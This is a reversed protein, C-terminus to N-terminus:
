VTTSIHGLKDRITAMGRKSWIPATGFPRSFIEIRWGYDARLPDGPFGEAVTKNDFPPIARPSGCSEGGSRRMEPRGVDREGGSPLGAQQMRYM